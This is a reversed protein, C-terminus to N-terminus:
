QRIGRTKKWSRSSRKFPNRNVRFESGQVRFGESFEPCAKFLAFGVPRSRNVIPNFMRVSCFGQVQFRSSQVASPTPPLREPRRRSPKEATFNYTFTECSLTNHVHRTCSLILTHTVSGDL